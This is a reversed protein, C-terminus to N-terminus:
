ALPGDWDTAISDKVVVKLDCNEWRCGFPEISILRSGPVYDVRKQGTKITSDRTCSPCRWVIMLHKDMEYVDCTVLRDRYRVTPNGIASKELNYEASIGTHADGKIEYVEEKSADYM